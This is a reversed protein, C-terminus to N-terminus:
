CPCNSKQLFAVYLAQSRKSIFVHLAFLLGVRYFPVVYAGVFLENLNFLKKGFGFTVSQVKRLHGGELKQRKPAQSEVGSSSCLNKENNQVPLM